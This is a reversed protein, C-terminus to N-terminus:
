PVLPVLTAVGVREPCGRRAGQRPCGRRPLPLLSHPFSTLPPRTIAAVLGYELLPACSLVEGARLEKEYVDYRRVVYWGAPEYIRTIGTQRPFAVDFALTHRTTIQRDVEPCGPPQVAPPMADETEIIIRWRNDVITYGERELLEGAARNTHNVVNRLGVRLGPRAHKAYQRARVEALRLLLTGVGRGRYAPHVCAQLEVRMCENDWTTSAYGAFRGNGDIIAWADTALNFGPKQWEVLIDEMTYHSVGDEVIDCAILLSTIAHADSLVPSRATLKHLLIAM